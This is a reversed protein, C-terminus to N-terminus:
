HGFFVTMQNLLREVGGTQLSAVTWHMQYIAYIQVILLTFKCAACHSTNFYKRIECLLNKVWQVSYKM